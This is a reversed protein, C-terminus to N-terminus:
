FKIVFFQIAFQLGRINFIINLLIFKIVRNAKYQIFKFKHKQFKGVYNNESFNEWKVLSSSFPNRSPFYVVALRTCKTSAPPLISSYLLDPWDAWLKYIVLVSITSTPDRRGMERRGRISTQHRVSGASHSPPPRLASLSIVTCSGPCYQSETQRDARTYWGEGRAWGWWWRGM